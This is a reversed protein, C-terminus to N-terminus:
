QSAPRLLRLGLTLFLAVVVTSILYKVFVTGILVYVMGFIVNSVLTALVFPRRPLLATLGAAYSLVIYPTGALRLVFVGQFPRIKAQYKIIHQLKKIRSAFQGLRFQSINKHLVYYRGAEFALWAAATAAVVIVFLASWPDFVILAVVSMVTISFGTLAVVVYILSYIVVAWLGIDSTLQRLIRVAQQVTDPGTIVFGLVVMGLLLILPWYHKLWALSRNM